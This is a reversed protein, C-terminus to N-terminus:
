AFNSLFLFKSLQKQSIKVTIVFTKNRSPLSSVLGYRWGIEVNEQYNRTKLSQTKIRKTVRTTIRICYNKYWINRVLKSTTFEIKKLINCTESINHGPNDMIDMIKQKATQVKLLSWLEQLYGQTKEFFNSSFFCCWDFNLCRKVQYSYSFFKERFIMLNSVRWLQSIVKDYSGQRKILKPLTNRKISKSGGIILM